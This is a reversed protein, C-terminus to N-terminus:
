CNIGSLHHSRQQFGLCSLICAFLYTLYIGIDNNTAMMGVIMTSIFINFYKVFVPNISKRALIFNLIVLVFSIVTFILLQTMDIKFLDIITLIILAPYVVLCVILLLSSALRNVEKDNTLIFAKRENFAGGWTITKKGWM